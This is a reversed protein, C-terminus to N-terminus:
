IPVASSLCNRRSNTRNSIIDHHLLYLIGGFVPSDPIRITDKRVYNTDSKRIWEFDRGSIKRVLRSRKPM